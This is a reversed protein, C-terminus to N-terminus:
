WPRMRSICISVEPYARFFEPLLPTVWRVGFSMPVALRILGRPRASLERATDEVQRM